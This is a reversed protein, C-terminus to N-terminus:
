KQPMPGVFALAMDIVRGLRAEDEVVEPALRVLGGMRRGTFALPEVGDLEVADPEREKGVRAMAGDRMVGALMNGNLLFCIGGFMKKETLGPMAGLSSVMREYVDQSYAM